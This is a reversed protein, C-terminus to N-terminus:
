RPRHREVASARDGQRSRADAESLRSRGSEAASSLEFWVRFRDDRSTGWRDAGRAVLTLGLGGVPEDARRPAAPDFGDGSDTVEVRARGRDAGIRLGIPNRQASGGHVLANTVLESTLLVAVEVDPPSLKGDIAERVEARARRPAGDDLELELEVREAYPLEPPPASPQGVFRIDADTGSLRFVARVHEPPSVVQLDVGRERARQEIEVVTRLGVSDVFMVRALDLVLASGSGGRAREFAELLQEASGHDIEGVVEITSSDETTVTVVDLSPSIVRPAPATSPPDLRARPARALATPELRLALAATDDSQPGVQFRELALELEALLEAPACHASEVLLTSLRRLGFRESAGRTDTVGDTYLLVTEDQGVSVSREPWRPSASVGLLPGGGGIERIRGSGSVILPGPHGASSLLLRDAHFRVCLASCLSLATRQRLAEDLRALIAAPGPETRSVFRAGHRVLAAMAAAEVGKGAVDGLIVTWGADTQFFDYFDGGVQVEAAGAARYLTAIEWGAISPAAEPLLSQQLTDAIDREAEEARRYERTVAALVLAVLGAVAVFTQALLLRNDPGTAAFPGKGNATFAVAVTAVLLSGLGAGPQLFRLAAWILLPFIAYVVNTSQSFVLASVGPLLLALALAETPRGPMRAFSSRTAAILLAPAVILDGGMDGLWWTRWVSAIHTASIAGGLLLSLVGITASVTTSIVAGYAVLALVDAVRQLSPRFGPLRRLLSAGAVAELTNGCVIGFVTVAPIGTDLNTFLAGLAVAPWLRLGGIVLAVLAIGTPPWIATVSRTAFALQLGLKGSATYVAAVAFVQLAYRARPQRALAGIHRGSLEVTSMGARRGSRLAGALVRM